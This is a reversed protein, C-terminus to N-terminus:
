GHRIQAARLSKAVFTKLVLLLTKLVLLPSATVM